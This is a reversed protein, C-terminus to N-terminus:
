AEVGEWTDMYGGMYKKERSLKFRIEILFYVESLKSILEGEEKSRAFYSNKEQNFGKQWQITPEQPHKYTLLKGM